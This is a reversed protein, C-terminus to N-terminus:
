AKVAIADFIRLLNEVEPGSLGIHKALDQESWTATWDLWPVLHLLADCAHQDIKILAIYARVLRNRMLFSLANDFEVETAFSVWPKVNGEEKSGQAKAVPAQDYFRLSTSNGLSYMNPIRYRSGDGYDLQTNGNGALLSLAMHFKGESKHLRKKWSDADAAAKFKQVTTNDLKGDFWQSVDELSAVSHQGPKFANDGYIRTRVDVHKCGNRSKDGFTIVMPVFMKASDGFPNDIFRTEVYSQGIDAKVKAYKKRKPSPDVRKQVLWEAPHVIIYSGDDKTIENAQQLFDLHLGAKYPPNGVVVDFKMHWEKTLADCNHVNEAWQEIGMRRLAARYRRVQQLSADNYHMQHSMIHRLRTGADPIASELGENLRLIIEIAFGGTGGALDVFTRSPDNWLEPPLRDLMEEVLSAPTITDTNQLELKSVVDFIRM